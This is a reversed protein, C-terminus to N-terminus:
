KIKSNENRNSIICNKYNLKELRKKAIDCYSEEIEFGVFNRNNRLAAVATTGGGMCGDFIVSNENTYTLLLWEFLATPKSTVHMGELTKNSPSSYEYFHIEPHQMVKKDKNSIYKGNQNNFIFNNGKRNWLFFEFPQLAMNNMNFVGPNTKKWIGIRPEGKTEGLYYKILCDILELQQWAAWIVISCSPKLIRCCHYIYDEIDFSMDWKGFEMGEWASCGDIKSYNKIAKFNTPKSILYPIDTLIMDISEDRILAIKDKYNCNYIKNMSLEQIM